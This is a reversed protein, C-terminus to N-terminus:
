GWLEKILRKQKELAKFGDEGLVEKLLAQVDQGMKTSGCIYLHAGNSLQDRIWDKQERMADQVYTKKQGPERSLALNLKSLTGKTEWAELNERYIFDIDKRRCGFFLYAPAREQGQGIEVERDQLFGIYPVVGTGPGVCILSTKAQDGPLAFM